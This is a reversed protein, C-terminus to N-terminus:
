PRQAAKIRLAHILSPVEVRSERLAISIALGEIDAVIGIYIALTVALGTQGLVLLSFFGVFLAVGWLKSSWMHYSAERKFKVMDVAYRAIELAALVSLAVVHQRIAEPYLYWAAFLAALYFVTDAVSDFRRLAQTVVGLRRAIVGDLIDSLFGLVLCIGFGIRTPFYIALVIIVPALLIRTATLAFPIRWGSQM